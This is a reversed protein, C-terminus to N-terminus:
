ELAQEIRQVRAEIRGLWRDTDRQHKAADESTYRDATRDYILNRLTQLEEGHQAAVSIATQSNDICSTIATKDLQPGITGMLGAGSGAVAVLIVAFISRPVSIHVTGDEDDDHNAV